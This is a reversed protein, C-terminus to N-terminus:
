VGDVEVVIMFIVSEEEKGDRVRHIDFYNLLAVEADEVESVSGLRQVLMASRGNFAISHEFRNLCGSVRYQECM